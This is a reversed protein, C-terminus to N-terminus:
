GADHDGIGFGVEAFSVGGGVGLPVLNNGAVAGRHREELVAALLTDLADANHRLIELDCNGFM